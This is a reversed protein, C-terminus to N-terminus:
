EFGSAFILDDQNVIVTRTLEIAPNGSSDSINYKIEYTDATNTDVTGTIVIQNSIDGDVLDSATANLETYTEGVSLNITAAGILTLDPATADTITVTQTDSGQHGYSDIATWIITHIGVAFPGSTNPSATLPQDDPNFVQASGLTVATLAATAETNIDIPATVVPAFSEFAGIDRLGDSTNYNRQGRTTGSVAADLAESLPLLAHTKACVGGVFPMSCGNDQLIGISSSTLSLPTIISDCSSNDIDSLNNDGTITSSGALSCDADAGSNNHFLSNFMDDITSNSNYIGGGLNSAINNAFTVNRIARITANNSNSIGAGRFATNGSFTSNFMTELRNFGLYFAGGENARNNEFTTFSIFGLTINEGTNEQFIAGGDGSAQNNILITNDLTFNRRSYIAGGDGSICGNALIINSISLSSRPLGDIELLRFEGPISSFEPTTCSLSNDRALKFGKGDLNIPSTVRPTGTSGLSSFSNDYKATLTINSGFEITDADFDNDANACVIAQNLEFANNVTTTFAGNTIGIGYVACQEAATLFEFAGIDRTNIAAFGRQDNANGAVATDTAESVATIAHTKICGGNAKPTVCGNDSLPGVSNTTLSSGINASSCSNSNQNSLNNNGTVSGFQISCDAEGSLDSNNHFLSNNIANINGSGNYIAGGINNNATNGAFTSNSILGIDGSDKHIAGGQFQNVTNKSFTSNEINNINGSSNFIAGGSFFAFNNSLTTNAILAITGTDNYIGGGAGADNNDIESGTIALQGDNLIAGGFNKKSAPNPDDVCGNALVIHRLDLFGNGSNNEVRLLRFKEDDDSGNIQCALSNDRELRFGKGDLVIPSSIGLTATRGYTADTEFPTIFVINLALEITDTTSTNANACFIAQNLHSANTVIQTFDGSIDMQNLACYDTPNIFEFAGVDRTGLADFGRQDTLTLNGVAPDIADSNTMLAHTRNCTNDALLTTCGNDMLPALNLQLSTNASCAGSSNDSLNGSENYTDSNFCESLGGDHQNFVSDFVDISAVVGNFIAQGESAATNDSFTSNIISTVIGNQNFIAGGNVSSENGSFTSNTISLLSNQNQGGFVDTNLVGGGLAASNSWFTTSSITTDSTANSLGGGSNSNNNIFLNNTITSVGFTTDVAGGRFTSTNNIFISDSVSLIARFNLVGGGINSDTTTGDACGNKLIINRLDLNGAPEGVRLLRFENANDDMNNTCSYSENREVTHGNGDLIIPTTIAPTGTRGFGDTDHLVDIQVDTILLITDSGNADDGALCQDVVTNTNAATIAESLSCNNDNFIRAKTDNVTIIAAQVFGSLLFFGLLTINVLTKIKNKLHQSNVHM